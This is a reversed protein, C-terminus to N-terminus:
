RGRETLDSMDEQFSGMGLWLLMACNAVDVAEHKVKKFKAGSTTINPHGHMERDLERVELWIKELMYSPDCGNTTEGKYDNERLIREMDAAFRLLEPRIKLEETM